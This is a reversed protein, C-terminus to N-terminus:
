NANNGDAAAVLTAVTRGNRKVFLSQDGGECFLRYRYWRDEGFADKYTVEGYVFLTANGSLVLGKYAKTIQTSSATDTRTFEAKPLVIEQRVIADDLRPLSLNEAAFPHPVLSLGGWSSIEYAPTRGANSFTLKVDLPDESDLNRVEARIRGIFARLERRASERAGKVAEGAAKAASAGSAAAVARAVYVLTVALLVTAAAVAYLLWRMLRVIEQASEAIGKPDSAEVPATQVTDGSAESSTPELQETLPAPAVESAEAPPARPQESPAEPSQKPSPDEISIGMGEPLQLQALVVNSAM